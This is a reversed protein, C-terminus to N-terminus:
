SGRTSLYKVRFNFFRAFFPVRSANIKMRYPVKSTEYIDSAKRYGLLNYVSSHRSDAPVPVPYIFTIDFVVSFTDGSFRLPPTSVM